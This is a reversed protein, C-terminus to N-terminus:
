VAESPPKPEVDYYIGRGHREYCLQGFSLVIADLAKYSIDFSHASDQRKYM